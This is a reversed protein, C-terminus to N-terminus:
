VAIGEANITTSEEPELEKSYDLMYICVEQAGQKTYGFKNQLNNM